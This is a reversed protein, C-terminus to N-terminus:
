GDAFQTQKRKTSKDESDVGKNLFFYVLLCIFLYNFFIFNVNKFPIGFSSPSMVRGETLFFDQAIM